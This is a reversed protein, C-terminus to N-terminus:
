ARLFILKPDTRSGPDPFFGIGSGPDAVSCKTNKKDIYIQFKSGIDGVSAQHGQHWDEHTQGSRARQTALAAAAAALQTDQEAHGRIHRM